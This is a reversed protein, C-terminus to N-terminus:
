GPVRLRSPTRTATQLCHLTIKRVEAKSAEIHAHLLRSAEDPDRMLIARLIKGHEDYTIEIRIAQTFDLRRIIRIRETVERHVRAIEPNGAAAVLAMYFGEDLEAVRQGDTVRDEPAVLWIRQLGDLADDEISTEPRDVRSCLRGVATTELVMRLDYLHDFLEFDLPLVVWGSRAAVDLYGERQLRFLAERVPTRSIGLREALEAESFRDGPLLQFDFIDKKIQAYAGDALKAPASARVAINGTAVVAGTM